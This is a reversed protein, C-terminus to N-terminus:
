TVERKRQRKLGLRVRELEGEGKRQGKLDLKEALM